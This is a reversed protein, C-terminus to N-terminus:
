FISQIPTGRDILLNKKEKWIEPYKYFPVRPYLHHINHYTLQNFTLMSIWNNVEGETSFLGHTMNTIAYKNDRIDTEYNRHPLYDFLISLIM